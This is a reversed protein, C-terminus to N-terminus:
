KVCTNLHHTAVDIIENILNVIYWQICTYFLVHRISDINDYTLEKSLTMLSHKKNNHLSPKKQVYNCFSIRWVKLSEFLCYLRRVFKLTTTYEISFEEDTLTTVGILPSFNIFVFYRSKQKGGVGFTILVWSTAYYWWIWVVNEREKRIRKDCVVTWVWIDRRGWVEVLILMVDRRRWKM